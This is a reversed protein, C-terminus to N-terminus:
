APHSMRGTRLAVVVDPRENRAARLAPTNGHVDSIAAITTM